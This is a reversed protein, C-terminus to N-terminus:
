CDSGTGPVNLRILAPPGNAGPRYPLMHCAAFGGVQNTVLLRGRGRPRRRRKIRFGRSGRCRVLQICWSRNLALSMPRFWGPQLPRRAARLGGQAAADSPAVGRINSDRVTSWRSSSCGTRCAAQAAARPRCGRGAAPCPARCGERASQAASPKARPWRRPPTAPDAPPGAARRRNRPALRQQRALGVGAPQAEALGILQRSQHHVFIAVQHNQLQQGLPQIRRRHALRQTRTSRSSSAGAAIKSRGSGRTRSSSPSAAGFRVARHACPLPLARQLM